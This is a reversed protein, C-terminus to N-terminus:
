PHKEGIDNNKHKKRNHSIQMEPDVSIQQKHEIDNQYGSWVVAPM